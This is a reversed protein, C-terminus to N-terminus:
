ISYKRIKINNYYKVRIEIYLKKYINRFKRADEKGTKWEKKWKEEM